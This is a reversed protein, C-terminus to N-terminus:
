SPSTYFVLVHRSANQKAQAQAKQLSDVAYPLGYALALGSMGMLLAAIALRKMIDGQFVLLGTAMESLVQRM